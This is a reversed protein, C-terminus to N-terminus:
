ATYMLKRQTVVVRDENLVVAHSKITGLPYSGTVVHKLEQDEGNNTFVFMDVRSNGYGLYVHNCEILKITNLITFLHVYAWFM